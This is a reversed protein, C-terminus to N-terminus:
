KLIMIVFILKIYVFMGFARTYLKTKKVVFSSILYLEKEM